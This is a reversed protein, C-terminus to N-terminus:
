NWNILNCLNYQPYSTWQGDECKKCYKQPGFEYVAFVQGPFVLNSAEENDLKSGDAAYVFYDVGMLKTPDCKKISFEIQCPLYTNDWKGKLCKKCWTLSYIEKSPSISSFIAVSSDPLIELSKDFEHKGDWSQISNLVFNDKINELEKKWCVYADDQKLSRNKQNIKSYAINPDCLLTEAYRSWSAKDRKLTCVKCLKSTESIQYIVMVSGPQFLNQNESLLEDNNLKIIGTLDNLNEKECFYLSSDSTCDQTIQSWIGNICISCYHLENLSNKKKYISLSRSPLKADYAPSLKSKRDSSVIYVRTFNIHENEIMLLNKYDCTTEKKYIENLRNNLQITLRSNKTYIDFPKKYVDYTKLDCLEALSYKTWEGNEHCQKCYKDNSGFTYQAIATYPKILTQKDPIKIYRPISLIDPVGALQDRDCSLTVCSELESWVGNDCYRCFKKTFVNFSYYNLDLESLRNIANPLNSLYRQYVVVTRYPLENDLIHKEDIKFLGDPSEIRVRIYDFQNYELEKLINYKCGVKPTPTTLEKCISADSFKSWDGEKQCEKCLNADGFKYEAIVTGPIFLKVNDSYENQYAKRLIPRGILLERDCRIIDCTKIETWGLRTCYRCKKKPKAKEKDFEDMIEYLVMSRCEIKASSNLEKTDYKEIGNYKELRIQKYESNLNDLDILESFDCYCISSNLEYNLIFESIHILFIIVFYTKIM